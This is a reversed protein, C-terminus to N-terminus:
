TDVRNDDSKVDMVVAKCANDLFHDLFNMVFMPKELDFVGMNDFTNELISKCTALNTEGDSTIVVIKSGLNFLNNLNGIPVELSEDDNSTTIPMKIHAHDRVHDHAYYERM